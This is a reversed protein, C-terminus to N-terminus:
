RILLDSRNASRFPLFCHFGSTKLTLIAFVRINECTRRFGSNGPGGAEGQPGQGGEGGTPGVNGPYGSSGPEGSFGAAGAPGCAIILSMVFLPVLILGLRSM